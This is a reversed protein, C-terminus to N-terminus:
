NSTPVFATQLPPRLDRAIAEQAEDRKAVRTMRSLKKYEARTAAIKARLGALEGDLRAEEAALWMSRQEIWSLIDHPAAPQTFSPALSPRMENTIAFSATPASAGLMTDVIVARKGQWGDRSEGEGKLAAIGVNWNAPTLTQDMHNCKVCQVVLKDQANPVFSPFSSHGCSPCSYNQDSV